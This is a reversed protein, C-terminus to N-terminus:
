GWMLVLQAEEHDEFLGGGLAQGEDIAAMAVMGSAAM